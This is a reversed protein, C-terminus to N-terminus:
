PSIWSSDLLLELVAKSSAFAGYTLLFMDIYTFDNDEFSTILNEVLKELTGSTIKRTNSVTREKIQDEEDQSSRLPEATSVAPVLRGPTPLVTVGRPPPSLGRVRGPGDQGLGCGAGPLSAEGRRQSPPQAPRRRPRALELFKKDYTEEEQRRRLARRHNHAPTKLIFYATKRKHTPTKLIFYATKRVTYKEGILLLITPFLENM